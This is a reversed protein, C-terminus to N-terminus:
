GEVAQFHILKGLGSSWLAKKVLNIKNLSFEDNNGRLLSKTVARTKLNRYVIWSVRTYSRQLKTQLSRIVDLIQDNFVFYYKKPM